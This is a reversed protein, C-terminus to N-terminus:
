VVVSEFFYRLKCYDRIQCFKLVEIYALLQNRVRNVVVNDRGSAQRIMSTKKDSPNSITNLTARAISVKPLFSRNDSSM